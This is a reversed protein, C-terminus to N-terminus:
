SWLYHDNLGSFPEIDNVAMFSTVANIAPALKEDVLEPTLEVGNYSRGEILMDAPTAGDKGSLFYEECCNHLLTGEDAFSSSGGSPMQDSLKRWAPCNLTRKFTSGGYRHHVEPM